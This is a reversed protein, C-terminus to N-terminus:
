EDGAGQESVLNEPVLMRGCSSCRTYQNGKKLANVNLVSQVVGCAGCSDNKLLAMPRKKQSVLDNYIVLMYSPIEGRLAERKQKWQRYTEKIEQQRQALRSSRSRGQEELRQLRCTENAIKKELDDLQDIYGLQLEELNAKRKELEFIKQQISLLEKSQGGDQYLQSDHQQLKRGISETEVVAADYQKKIQQWQERAKDIGARIADLNTRAERAILEKIHDWEKRLKVMEVEAQQLEWMQRLFDM